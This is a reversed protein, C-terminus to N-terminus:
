INTCSSSSRLTHFGGLERLDEAKGDGELRFAEAVGRADGIVQRLRKKQRDGPVDRVARYKVGVEVPALDPHQFYDVGGGNVRFSGGICFFVGVGRWADVGVVDRKSAPRARAASTSKAAMPRIQANRLITFRHSSYAGSSSMSM